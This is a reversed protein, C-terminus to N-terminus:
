FLCEAARTRVTRLPMGNQLSAQSSWGGYVSHRVCAGGLLRRQTVAKSSCAGQGESPPIYITVWTLATRRAALMFTKTKLQHKTETSARAVVPLFIKVILKTTQNNRFTNCQEYM